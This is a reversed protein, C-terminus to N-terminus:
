RVVTRWRTEQSISVILGAWVGINWATLDGSFMGVTYRSVFGALAFVAAFSTMPAIDDRLAKLFNKIVAVTFAGLFLLGVLGNEGLVELLRNHVYFRSVGGVQAGIAGLTDGTGWGILPSTTFMQWGKQYLDLRTLVNPDQAMYEIDFQPNWTVLLYGIVLATLAGILWRFGGRHRIAANLRQYLLVILVLTAVLLSLAAGRQQYALLAWLQLLYAPTLLWREHPHGTIFLATAGLLGLVLADAESIANLGWERLVFSRAADGIDPRWLGTVQAAYAVALAHCVGAVVVLWAMRRVNFFAPHYGWRVIAYGGVTYAVFGLLKIQGYAPASSYGVGLAIWASFAVLWMDARALRPAGPPDGQWARHLWICVICLVLTLLVFNGRLLLAPESPLLGWVPMGAVLIVLPLEPVFRVVLVLGVLGFTLAAIRAEWYSTGWGVLISVVIGVLTIAINRTSIPAKSSQLWTRVSM